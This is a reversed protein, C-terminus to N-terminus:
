EAGKGQGPKWQQAKKMSGRSALRIVTRTFRPFHRALFVAV